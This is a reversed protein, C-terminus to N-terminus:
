NELADSSKFTQKAGQKLILLSSGAGIILQKRCITVSWRRWVDRLSASLMKSIAVKQKKKKALRDFSKARRKISRFVHGYILSRAVQAGSGRRLTDGRRMNIFLSRM